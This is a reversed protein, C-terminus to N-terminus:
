DSGPPLPPGDGRRRLRSALDPTPGEAALGLHALVDAESPHSEVLAEGPRPSRWEGPERSNRKMIAMALPFLGSEVLFGLVVSGMRAQEAAGEVENGTSAFYLRHTGETDPLILMASPVTGRVVEGGSGSADWTVTVPM